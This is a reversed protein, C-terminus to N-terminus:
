GAALVAQLARGMATFDEPDVVDVLAQRVSEVHIPAANVLVDWGKDTLHATIGRRDCAAQRREVLGANEMRSITHTLRSRSQHVLDALESMRQQRGPTESLQVLVEYESLDLGLPRLAANLKTNLLSSAMLYARWIFQQEEDLWRPEENTTM